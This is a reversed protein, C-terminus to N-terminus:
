EIRIRTTSNEAILSRVDKNKLPKMLNVKLKNEISEENTCYIFFYRFINKTFILAFVTLRTYMLTRLTFINSM